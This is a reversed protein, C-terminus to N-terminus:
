RDFQKSNTAIDSAESATYVGGQQPWILDSRWAPLIGSDGSRHLTTHHLTTCGSRTYHLTAVGLTAVGIYHLTALGLTTYGTWGARGRGGGTACRAVLPQLPSQGCRGGTARSPELWMQWWHSSLARAGDAVLQLALVRHPLLSPGQAVLLPAPQLLPQRGSPSHYLTHGAPHSCHPAWMNAPASITLRGPTLHRLHTRYIHGIPGQLICHVHSQWLLSM